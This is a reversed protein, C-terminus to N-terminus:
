FSAFFHCRLTPTPPSTTDLETLMKWKAMQEARHPLSFIIDENGRTSGSCLCCFSPENREVVLLYHNMAMMLGEFLLLRKEGLSVLELAPNITGKGSNFSTLDHGRREVSPRWPRLLWELWISAGVVVAGDAGMERGDECM